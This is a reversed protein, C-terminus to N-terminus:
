THPILPMVQPTQGVPCAQEAPLHLVLVWHLAFLQEPQQEPEIQM